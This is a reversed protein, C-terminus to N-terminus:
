SGTTEFVKAIANVSVIAFFTFGEIFAASLLMSVFIRGGAEPQRAISEVANGAIHSIGRAAGMVSLAIGLGLGIGALGKDGFLQVTEAMVELM